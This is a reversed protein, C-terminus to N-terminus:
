SYQKLHARVNYRLDNVLFNYLSHITVVVASNNEMDGLGKRVVGLFSVM